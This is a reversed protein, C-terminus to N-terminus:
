RGGAPRKQPQKKNRSNIEEVIARQKFHDKADGMTYHGKSGWQTELKKRYAEREADSMAAWRRDADGSVTDRADKYSDYLRDPDYGALKPNKTDFDAIVDCKCTSHRSVSATGESSYNFGQSGLIVCYGCAGAHPVVAWKPHLPDAQANSVIADDAQGMVRRSLSAQFARDLVAPDFKGLGYSSKMRYGVDEALLEDGLREPMRATYSEADPVARAREADYFECAAQAAVDGYRRALAPYAGRMLDRVDNLPTGAPISAIVSSLARMALEYNRGLAVRYAEFAKRDVAM